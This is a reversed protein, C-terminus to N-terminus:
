KLKRGWKAGPMFIEKKQKESLSKTEGIEFYIFFVGVFTIGGYLFFTGSPSWVM